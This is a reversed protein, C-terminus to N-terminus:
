APTIKLCIEGGVRPQRWGLVVRRVDVPGDELDVAPHLEVRVQVQDPAFGVRLAGRQGRIIVADGGVEVQALTILASELLSPQEAFQAQDVVEVWGHPATRHLTIRRQLSTLGVEAPYFDKLELQLTDATEDAQQALLIAAHDRGAQQLQGNVVPVSHGLSSNVMQEYRQAGFYEATYRGRGIDALLSEGRWHVIFHGGDNHNHLEGNHGGKAALVLADPDTPDSRAILWM